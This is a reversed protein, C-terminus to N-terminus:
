RQLRVELERVPQRFHEGFEFNQALIADALLLSAQADDHRGMRLLCRGYAAQAVAIYPSSPQLHSAFISLSQSLSQFGQEVQGIECLASGQTGLTHAEVLAAMPMKQSRVFALAEESHAIAGTNDGRLRALEARMSKALAVELPLPSPGPTDGDKSLVNEILADATELRHAHLEVQALRLFAARLSATQSQNEKRVAIVDQALRRAEDYRGRFDLAQAIGLQANTQFLKDGLHEFIAAAKVFLKQAKDARGQEIYAYGLQELCITLADSSPLALEMAATSQVLLDIGAERKGQAHLVRGLLCKDRLTRLHTPGLVNTYIASADRYDAEAPVYDGLKNEYQARTFYADALGLQGGSGARAATIAHDAAWVAKVSDGLDWYVNALYAWAVMHGEDRPYKEQWLPIVNLLIALLEKARSSGYQRLLSAKITQVQAYLLSSRDGVADLMGQAKAITEEAAKRDGQEQALAVCRLADAMAEARDSLRQEAIRAASRCLTIAKDPLGIEDYLGGLALLIEHKTEPQDDLSGAIRRQGEDLLERATLESPKRLNPAKPDNANFISLLFDKIAAAKAAETTAKAAEARAHNAERDAIIRQEQAIRSQWLVAGLGIASAMVVAGASAGALKNRGVFKKVRYWTSDPQALVPEGRLYRVIDAAFANVTPYREASRKKLAKLVITDIDGHLAKVMKPLTMACAQAQAAQVTQSPKLPDDALIAEELAGRSDRKLKYPRAGALLEYFVVGLSYVDSATSLPQGQIQEPSAYDPTLARGGLQTLETERVEGDVILKAIGFDLLSVQGQASVLINSPKIDRHIVLRAHAFQVAELVQLFLEARERLKLRRADCYAILPTGEVYEMALYPQGESSVGADYLRAINPHTLVSLIDRERAFREVFRARHLYIHPLKLAINRRMQGDSRTALWVTSMGGHGIERVLRYPGVELGAVLAASQTLRGRAAEIAEGSLVLPPIAADGTDLDTHQALLRDFTEKLQPSESALRALLASRDAASQELYTDLLDFLLKWEHGTIKVQAM